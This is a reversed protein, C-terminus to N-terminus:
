PQAILRSLIFITIITLIVTIIGTILFQKSLQDVTKKVYDTNAFMFVDGEHKDNMTIPSVTAVFEGNSWEDDLVKGEKPIQKENTDSIIEKMEDAVSDSSIIIDGNNNTIVVSFESASEMIGVHELTSQDFYDELVDRHTNGRALLSKMVEDIRNNALNIYLISFLFTEIILIFIFFLLGVKFSLKHRIEKLLEIQEDIPEEEKEEQKKRLKNLLRIVIFISFAIILFDVVSQIFIGYEVNANGITFNLSTFNIGGLLIGVLPMIVNDVLSSVIQGFAAGIIIGVALDMVNGQAIFEKFDKWMIEAGKMTFSNM